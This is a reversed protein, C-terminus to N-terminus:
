KLRELAVVPRGKADSRCLRVRILHLLLSSASVPNAAPPHACGGAPDLLPILNECTGVLPRLHGVPIGPGAFRASPTAAPWGSTIADETPSRAGTRKLLTISVILIWLLWTLYPYGIAGFLCAAAVVYGVVVLWKPLLSAKSGGASTAAVSLAAALMGPLLLMGLGLYQLLDIVRSDRALPIGFEAAFPVVLPAVSAMMTGVLHLVVYVVGSMLSANALIRATPSGEVIRHHLSLLFLLLVVGALLMLWSGAAARWRNGTQAFFAEYNFSDRDNTAIPYASLCDGGAM